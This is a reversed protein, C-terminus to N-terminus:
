KKFHKMILNYVFAKYYWNCDKLYHEETYLNFKLPLPMENVSNKNKIYEVKGKWMYNDVTNLTRPATAEALNTTGMSSGNGLKNFAKLVSNFRNLDWQYEKVEVDIDISDMLNIQNEDLDSANVYIGRPLSLDKFFQPLVVDEMKISGHAFEDDPKLQTCYFLARMVSIFDGSVSFSKNNNRNMISSPISEKNDVDICSSLLCAVIYDCIVDPHYIYKRDIYEVLKWDETHKSFSDSDKIRNFINLDRSRVVKGDDKKKSKSKVYQSIMDTIITDKEHEKLDTVDLEEEAIKDVIEDVQILREDNKGLESGGLMDKNESM